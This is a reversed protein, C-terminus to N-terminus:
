LSVREQCPQCRCTESTRSAKAMIVATRCRAFWRGGGFLRLRTRWFALQDAPRNLLDPANCHTERLAANARSVDNCPGEPPASVLGLCSVSVDFSFRWKYPSSPTSCFRWPARRGSRIREIIASQGCSASLLDRSRPPARGLARTMAGRVQIRDSATPGSWSATMRMPPSAGPPPDM